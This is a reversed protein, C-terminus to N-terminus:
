HDTLLTILTEPYFTESTESLETTTWWRHTEVTRREIETWGAYDVASHAARVRFYHETQLYQRGEFPFQFSRTLLVPGLNDPLVHGTEEFVERRAAQELSEGVEVGGGPTFWWSGAEPRSSDHGRFLLVRGTGDVLLVRAALREIVAVPESGSGPEDDPAAGIGETM